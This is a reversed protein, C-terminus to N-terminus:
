VPTELHSHKWYRKLLGYLGSWVFGVDDLGTPRQQFTDFSLSTALRICRTTNLMKSELTQFWFRGMIRLFCVRAMNAKELKKKFNDISNSKDSLLLVAAGSDPIQSLLHATVLPKADHLHSSGQSSGPRWQTPLLTGPDQSAFSGASENAGHRQAKFVLLAIQEFLSQELKQRESIWSKARENNQLKFQRPLAHFPHLSDVMVMSVSLRLARTRAVSNFTIALRICCLQECRLVFSVNSSTPLM